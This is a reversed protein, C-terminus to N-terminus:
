PSEEEAQTYWAVGDILERRAQGRRILYNLCAVAEGTALELQSADSPSIARGFLAAFVDVVRKPEALRGHLRRLALQQGERLRDLRAHLGQFAGHHAPLVLVSDPVRSRIREVSVFWDAMPDAEPQQAHVSVNSSIRPLVQDGSIFWGREPCHLCAHEPSHGHGILVQWDHAGIRLTQGDRLRQFSTPLPHIHQGFRGFRQAHAAVAAEDWGAERVFRLETEPAAQGANAMHLRAHLYEGESIYLPAGCRAQLWGAMGIHDPHMHTVIVRTIPQGQLVESRLREWVAVVAETHTGTDVLAWGEGDRLLWVNIHDIRYPLPLSVWLLDPEVALWGGVAPATFPYHLEARV